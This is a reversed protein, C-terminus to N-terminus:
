PTDKKDKDQQTNEKDIIKFEVRPDSQLEIGEPLDFQLSAEYTGAKKVFSLDVSVRNAVDFKELVEERGTFVLSIDQDKGYEIRLSDLLGNVKISELPYEVKKTGEQEIYLTVVINPSVQDSLSIGDPLYPTIDVTIEKKEWMGSIDVAQAPVTIQSVNELVSAPGQITVSEPECKLHSFVYGEKPEGSISVKVPVSKTEYMRVSVNVGEEGLNNSLQSQDIPNGDVDYLLLEGKVKTDEYMGTVNVKAVAKDIKQILSEAGGISVTDPSVTTEGVVYGDRPTGTVAVTLPFTNKTKDEVKIRLNGPVAEATVNDERGYNALSVKVPVMYTNLDMSRLDAVATIDEKRIKELVSRPASVSVNVTQDDLVQYVKGQNTVIEPNAITVPVDSFTTKMVPNDFNVVIFWLLVAFVFAMLKLGANETFNHRKMQM